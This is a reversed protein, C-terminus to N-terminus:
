YSKIFRKYLLGSLGSQYRLINYNLSQLNLNWDISEIRWFNSIKNIVEVLLKNNIAIEITFKNLKYLNVAGSPQINNPEYSFSYTNINNENARTCYKYKNLTTTIKNFNIKDIIKIGDRRADDFYIVTSLILDNVNIINNVKINNIYLNLEWYLQYCLNTMENFEFNLYIITDNSNFTENINFTNNNPEYKKSALFNYHTNILNDIRKETLSKREEKEVYIFDVLLSLELGKEITSAGYYAKIINDSNIKVKIYKNVYMSSILSLSKSIEKYFFYIPIYFDKSYNIIYNRLGYLMYDQDKGYFENLTRIKNINEIFSYYILLMDKSLTDILEDNFYLEIKDIIKLIGDNNVFGLTKNRLRTIYDQQINVLDDPIISKLYLILISQNIDFVKDLLHKFIIIKNNKINKRYFNDINFLNNVRYEDLGNYTKNIFNNINTIVTDDTKSLNNSIITNFFSYCLEILETNSYNNEILVNLRRFFIEMEIYETTKTQNEYYILIKKYILNCLYLVINDIDDIITNGYNYFYILMFINYFLVVLMQFNIKNIDNSFNTYILTFININANKDYNNDETFFDTFVNISLNSDINNYYGGYLEKFKELYENIMRIIINIINKIFTQDSLELETYYTLLNDNNLLNLIFNGFFSININPATQYLNNIYIINFIGNYDYDKVINNFNNIGYDRTLYISSDLIDKNYNL